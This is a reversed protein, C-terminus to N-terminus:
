WVSVELPVGWQFVGLHAETEYAEMEIHLATSNPTITPLTNLFQSVLLVKIRINM